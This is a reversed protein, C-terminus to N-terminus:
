DNANREKGALMRKMIYETWEPNTAAEIEAMIGPVVFKRKELGQVFMEAEKEYYGTKLRSEVLPLYVKDRYMPNITSSELTTTDHEMMKMVHNHALDLRGTKTFRNPEGM